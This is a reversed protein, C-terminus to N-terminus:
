NSLRKILMIYIKCLVHFNRHGCEVLVVVSSGSKCGISSTINGGSDTQMLKHGTQRYVGSIESFLTLEGVYNNRVSDSCIWVVSLLYIMGILCTSIFVTAKMYTSTNNTKM